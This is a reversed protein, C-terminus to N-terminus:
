LYFNKVLDMAADEIAPMDGKDFVMEHIEGDVGGLLGSISEEEEDNAPGVGDCEIYVPCYNWGQAACLRKLIEYENLYRMDPIFVVDAIASLPVLTETVKNAFVGRDKSRCYRGFEKMLPRLKEKEVRNETYCDAAVGLAQFAMNLAGKLADAMKIRTYRVGEPLAESLADAMTDKGAGAFGAIAFVTFQRDQDDSAM